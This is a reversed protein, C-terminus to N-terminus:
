GHVVLKKEVIANGPGLVIVPAKYRKAEQEDFGAYAIIIVLDGEKAKHAAAGYIAIAKSGEPEPIIYTTFREGSTVNLVDIQMGPLMGTEKLFARDIGLSGEYHMDSKTVTARHIKSHLMRLIM